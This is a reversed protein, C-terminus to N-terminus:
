ITAPDFPADDLGDDGEMDDGNEQAEIQELEEIEKSIERLQRVLPALDRALTQESDLHRTIVNRVARLEDLRSGNEAAWAITGDPPPSVYDLSDLQKKGAM